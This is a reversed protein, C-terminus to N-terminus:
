DIKFVIPIRYQVKVVKDGQRGPKMQPLKSVVRIAEKELTKDIARALVESVNGNEDIYFQVTIRQKGKTNLNDFKDTNFKRQIFRKIKLSMCNRREINSSLFECGPYIPVHEVGIINVFKNENSNEEISTGKPYDKDTVNSEDLGSLDTDLANVDELKIIKNIFKAEIKPQKRIVKKKQIREPKELTYFIMPPEQLYDINPTVSVIERTEFKTQIVFYVTLLCVILGLQFFLTSNWKINVSKKDDRRSLTKPQDNNLNHKSLKM